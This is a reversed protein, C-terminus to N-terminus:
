RLMLGALLPLRLPRAAAAPRAAPLMSFLQSPRPADM